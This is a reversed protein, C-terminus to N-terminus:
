FGFGLKFGYRQNDFASSYELGIKLLVLNIDVGALVQTGSVTESNSTAATYATDFISTSGTVSLKNKANLMGVGIYPEILPFMPSFLLQAGSVSTENEVTQLTSSVTQSFKFSANSTFGRLALNVPLIPIVDNINWKIAFSNSALKADDAKLTPVIVAEFAIGFPIGVAGMLGANYLSEIKGGERKAIDNLDSVDTQAGVLGVQFGFITGMKSAGLMSNHTFNAGMAKTITKMDDESISDLKPEAWVSVPLLFFLVVKLWKM